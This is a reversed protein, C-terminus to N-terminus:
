FPSGSLLFGTMTSLLPFFFLNLSNSLVLIILIIAGYSDIKELYAAPKEPLLGALIRGGDLPPIPILNIMGLAINVEVAAALMERAPAAFLIGTESGPGSYVALGRSLHFILACVLALLFNALPGALAIRMLDRRPSALNDPNISIPKAWGFARTIFFVLTGFFDLHALPNLTLRGMKRPTDDGFYDAALGHAFEHVTLGFLIPVTYIVIDHFLPQM